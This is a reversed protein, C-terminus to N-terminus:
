MNSELLKNVAEIVEEPKIEDMCENNFRCAPRKCPVCDLKKQIVVSYKGAPGYELPDTPGFISVVRIGLDSAIHMSASDCSVLIKMREIAAFLEGLDTKGTLDIINASSVSKLIHGSVDKKTEEGILIIRTDAKKVLGKVVEIFGDMRWEKTLSLCSPSIGILTDTDKAGKQKLINDIKSRDGQDIYINRRTGCALGLGRLKNLHILRKHKLGSPKFSILSNRYRAGALLPMLSTKMDVALDYREKRLNKVFGIKEKLSAHKDYIFIKNISPDKIFVEKSRPGAVVDVKADKFNDKLCTLAPLTLIADGINSLTIFLVKNINDMKMANM